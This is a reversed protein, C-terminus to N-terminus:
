CYMATIESPNYFLSHLFATSSFIDTLFPFLLSGSFSHPFTNNQTADQWAGALYFEGTFWLCSGRAVMKRPPLLSLRNRFHISSQFAATSLQDPRLPGDRLRYICMASNNSYFRPFPVISVTTSGTLKVLQDLLSCHRAQPFLTRLFTLICRKCKRDDKISTQTGQKFSLSTLSLDM